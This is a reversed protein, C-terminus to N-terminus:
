RVWFLYSTFLFIILFLLPLWRTPDKPEERKKQTRTSSRKTKKDKDELAESEIEKEEESNKKSKGLNRMPFFYLSNQTKRRAYKKLAGLWLM